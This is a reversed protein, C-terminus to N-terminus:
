GMSQFVTIIKDIDEKSLDEYDNIWSDTSKRFLVIIKVTKIGKVYMQRDMMDWM